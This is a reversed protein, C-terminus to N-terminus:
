KKNIKFEGRRFSLNFKRFCKHVCAEKHQIDQYQNQYQKLALLEILSLIKVWFKAYNINYILMAKLDIRPRLGQSAEVYNWKYDPVDQPIVGEL